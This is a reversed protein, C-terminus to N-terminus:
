TFLTDFVNEGMFSFILPTCGEIDIKDEEEPLLYEESHMFGFKRYLRLGTNNANLTVACFGLISTSIFYLEQMFTQFLKYSYRVGDLDVAEKGRLAKSVAFMRIEACSLYKNKERNKGLLGTANVAAYGYIRRINGSELENKDVAVYTVAYGEAMWNKAQLKLFDNFVEEGCDFKDVVDSPVNSLSTWEFIM